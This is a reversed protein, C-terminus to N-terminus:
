DRRIKGGATRPIADVIRFEVPVKHSSLVEACAAALTRPDVTAGPAAAIEACPVEGLRPHPRGVVRSERVGPQRDLVAEVEEPFVKMGATVITSKTRGHLTLRGAHDLAGVDGTALWGDPFARGRPRWPRYYGSALGAGRITVEGPVGAALPAGGEGVIAVEYGPVARGVSTAPAGDARTNICPLGAEIIGYAQGLPVGFAAEFDVAVQAPLAAATSLAVRVAGLPVRRGAGAMRAFQIPAGYLLTARARAAADVLAQPLTDRCLLVHAGARVYATITVAFHYALSLTWLVRDDPGLRLVGDAAEVRALVDAHSLMVGKRDATTGSTFRVFAADIADFGDAPRRARDVWALVPGDDGLRVIGNVDTEELVATVEAPRLTPAIPVLCAGAALVGFAAPVHGLVNEAALAIRQGREVGDRRLHTAIREVESALAAFDLTRGSALDTLAPRSRHRVASEALLDPLTM